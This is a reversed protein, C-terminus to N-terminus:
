FLDKNTNYQIKLYSCPVIFCKRLNNKNYIKNIESIINQVGIFCIVKIYLM